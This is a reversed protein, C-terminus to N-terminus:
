EEVGVLPIVVGVQSSPKSLPVDGRADSAFAGFRRVPKATVAPDHLSRHGPQGATPAQVTAVLALGLVEKRAKTPTAAARM